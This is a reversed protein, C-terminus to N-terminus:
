AHTRYLSWSGEQIGGPVVVPVGQKEVLVWATEDVSFSVNPGVLVFDLSSGASEIWEDAAEPTAWSGTINREGVLDINSKIVYLHHMAMSESAILLFSDDESSWQSSLAEGADESWIQHGIAGTFILFPTVVLVAIVQTPPRKPSAHATPEVWRLLMMMPAIVVTAYRGNNGLVVMVETLKMGWLVSELTWLTGIYAVVGSLVTGIYVTLM